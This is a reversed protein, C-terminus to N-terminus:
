KTSATGNEVVRGSKLGFIYLVIDIHTHTHTYIFFSLCIGLTCATSQLVYRQMIKIMNNFM